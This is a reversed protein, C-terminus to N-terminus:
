SAGVPPRAQSANVKATAWFECKASRHVWKAGVIPRGHGAMVCVRRVAEFRERRVAGSPKRTDRALEGGRGRSEALRNVTDDANRRKPAGLVQSRDRICMESGM